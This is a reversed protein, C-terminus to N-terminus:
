IHDERDPFPSCTDAMTAGYGPVPLGQAEPVVHAVPLDAKDIHYEKDVHYESTATMSVSHMSIDTTSSVSGAISAPTARVPTM